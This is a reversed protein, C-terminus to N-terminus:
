TYSEHSERPASLYIPLYYNSYSFSNFYKLTSTRNFYGFHNSNISTDLTRHYRM